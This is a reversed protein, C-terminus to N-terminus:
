RLYADILKKSHDFGIAFFADYGRDRLMELMKNQALLHENSLLNGDKKYINVAKLELFLGGKGRKPQAIFLDPYAKSHQLRKHKIAQGMNMKIGSAFDTRFIVEPYSYRLYDCVQQHLIEEKRIM